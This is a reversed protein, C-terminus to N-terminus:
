PFRLTLVWKEWRKQFANMDNEGLIRVLTDYGTPDTKRDRHFQKYFRVLQGRQQLYYCLYRAQAYNRGSGHGYFTRRSMGTLTKFSPLTDARIAQQLGRLRWNTHGVLQGNREGCQEYLSGLGENFWAPCEPFNAEVFPHVIEHCLTGGGTAINMVLANGSSSYYGYPTTPNDNLLERAHKRYSDKDRFLWVNLIRTPDKDFYMRKLHATVWRVTSAARRRVVAPSEDGIVVFPKEIVITFGNPLTPKLAHIHQAYDADTFTTSVTGAQLDHPDLRLRIVTWADRRYKLPWLKIFMKRSMRQYPSRAVAPEHYIVQDRRTDYGVILRFHETTHPRDDYHMCVVSPIGRKLDDITTDLLEGLQEDARRPAVQTYVRGTRFGINGAATTLERTYVGRGLAPDLGSQDFVWDQDVRHGLAQMAMALCAEGCFDPKQTIHPVNEILVVGERNSVSFGERPEPLRAQQQPAPDEGQAPAIHPGRNDGDHACRLTVTLLVLLAGIIALAHRM